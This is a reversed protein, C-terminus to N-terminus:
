DIIEIIDENDNIINIGERENFNLVKQPKFKCSRQHNKLSSLHRDMLLRLKFMKVDILQYALSPGLKKTSKFNTVSKQMFSM